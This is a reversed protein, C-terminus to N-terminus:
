NYHMLFYRDAVSHNLEDSLMVVTETLIFLRFLDNQLLISGDLSLVITICVHMLWPM